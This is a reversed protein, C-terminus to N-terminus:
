TRGKQRHTPKGKADMQKGLSNGQEGQRVVRPDVTISKILDSYPKKRNPPKKRLWTPEKTLVINRKNPTDGAGGDLIVKSKDGM